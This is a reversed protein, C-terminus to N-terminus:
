IIVNWYVSGYNSWRKGDIEYIQKLRPVDELLFDSFFKRNESVDSDSNDKIYIDNAIWLDTKLGGFIRKIWNGALMSGGVGEGYRIQIITRISIDDRMFIDRAVIANEGIIYLIEADWCNNTGCWKSNITVNIHFASGYNPSKDFAVIEKNFGTIINPYKCIDNVEISTNVDKYLIKINKWKNNIYDIGSICKREYIDEGMMYYGPFFKPAYDSFIFLDPIVRYKKPYSKIFCNNNSYIDYFPRSLYLLPRFDGGASPYWCISKKSKLLEVINSM